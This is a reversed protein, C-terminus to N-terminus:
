KLIFENKMKMKLFGCEHEFSKMKEMKMKSFVIIIEQINEMEENRNM